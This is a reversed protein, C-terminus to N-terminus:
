AVREGIERIMSTVVKTALPGMKSAAMRDLIRILADTMLLCTYLMHLPNPQKSNEKELAAWQALVANILDRHHGSPLFRVQAQVIPVVFGILKLKKMLEDLGADTVAEMLNASACPSSQEMPFPASRNHSQRHQRYAEVDLKAQVSPDVAM